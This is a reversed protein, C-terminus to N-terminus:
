MCFSAPVGMASASSNYALCPCQSPYLAKWCQIAFSYRLKKFDLFDSWKMIAPLDPYVGVDFSGTGWLKSDKGLHTGIGRELTLVQRQDFLEHVWRTGRSPSSDLQTHPTSCATSHFRALRRTALGGWAKAASFMTACKQASRVRPLRKMLLAYTHM